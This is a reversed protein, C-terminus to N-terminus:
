TAHIRGANSLPSPRGELDRALRGEVVSLAACLVILGFAAPVCWFIFRGGDRVVDHALASAGAGTHVAVLLGLTVTFAAPAMPRRLLIAAAVLAGVWEHGHSHPAVVITTLIAAVWTLDHDGRTLVVVFLGVTLVSLLLTAAPQPSGTLAYLFGSWNHLGAMYRHDDLDIGIRNTVLDIYDVLAGGGMLAFPLLVLAVSTLTLPLIARWHRRLLASGPLIVWQPKAAAFVLLTSALLTKGSQSAIYGCALLVAILVNPQSHVIASYVPVFAPVSAAILTTHPQKWKLMGGLLYVLIGLLVVNIAISVLYAIHLDLLTLPSILFLFFPPNYYRLWGRLDEPLQLGGLGYTEAITQVITDREYVRDPASGLNLAGTYLMAFDSGTPEGRQMDLYADRAEEAASVAFVVGSTAFACFVILVATRHFRASAWYRNGM